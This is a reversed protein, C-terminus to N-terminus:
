VKARPWRRRAWRTLALGGQPIIVDHEGLARGKRRAQWLLSFSEIEPPGLRVRGMITALRGSPWIGALAERRWLPLKITMVEPLVQEHPGSLVSVRRGLGALRGAIERCSVEVGRNISGFRPTIFLVSASVDFKGLTVALGPTRRHDSTARSFPNR